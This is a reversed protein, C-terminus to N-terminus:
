PRATQEAEQARIAASSAERSTAESAWERVRGGSSPGAWSAIALRRPAATAASRTSARGRESSSSPTAEAYVAELKAVMTSHSFALEAHARATKALRAALSRDRLVSATAAALARGDEPPVLVGTVGNEIQDPIGGVATAVVPTGAFMSEVITLPTGESRSPMVLADFTPLLDRVDRREGLFEVREAVGLKRALRELPVRLPGDGVVRFRVEPVERAVDDVVRLLVDIGKEPQLRAVVGVTPRGNTRADAVPPATVSNHVVAVKEAPVGFERTLQRRIASSVAVIRAARRYVIRSVLCARRSRWPAETQDTVVLPTGRGAVAIASAVASAYLHAHVLDYRGSRVLSRLALGYRLSARRKVMAPMVVRVPVGLDALERELPGGASAAVTVSDGRRHLACALDVLHREAGGTQLSDITLLVSRV